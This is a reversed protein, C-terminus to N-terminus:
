VRETDWKRQRRVAETRAFNIFTAREAPAINLYESLLEAIQKSPRREDSEIKYLTVAACGIRKALDERTLDLAKRRQKLWQGFSTKITM